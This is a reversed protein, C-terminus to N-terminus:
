LKTWPLLESMSTELAAVLAELVAIRAELAATDPATTQTSGDPFKFGGTPALMVDDPQAEGLATVDTGTYISKIPLFESM